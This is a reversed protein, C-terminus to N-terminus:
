TTAKKIVDAADALNAWSTGVGEMKCRYALSRLVALLDPASAILRANARQMAQFDVSPFQRWSEYTLMATVRGDEGVSLMPRVDVQYIPQINEGTPTGGVEVDALIEIGAGVNERTQWPGPTHKTTM